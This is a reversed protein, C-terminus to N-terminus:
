FKECSNMEEDRGIGSSAKFNNSALLHGRLFLSSHNVAGSSYPLNQSTFNCELVLKKRGERSGGSQLLASIEELHDTDFTATLKDDEDTTLRQRLM